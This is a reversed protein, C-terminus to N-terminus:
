CTIRSYSSTVQSYCVKLYRVVFARTRTQDLYCLGVLCMSLLLLSPTKKADFTSKHMFHLIPHFFQFFFSLSSDLIDITPFTAESVSFSKESVSLPTSRTEDDISEEHGILDELEICYQILSSRCEEDMAWRSMQSSSPASQESSPCSAQPVSFISDAEHHIARKWLKRTLRIGPKPGQGSWLRRIRGIQHVSFAMPPGNTTEDDARLASFPFDPNYYDTCNLMHSGIDLAGLPPIDGPSFSFANFDGEVPFHAQQTSEELNLTWPLRINLQSTLTESANAQSLGVSSEHACSETDQAEGTERNSMIHQRPSELVGTPNVRHHGSTLGNDLSRAMDDVGPARQSLFESVPHINDEYDFVDENPDIEGDIGCRHTSAPHVRESAETDSPDRQSPTRVLNAPASSSDIAPLLAQPVVSQQPGVHNRKSSSLASRRKRSSMFVASATRTTKHTGCRSAVADDTSGSTNQEDPPPHIESDQGELTRASQEQNNETNPHTQLHRYLVDSSWHYLYNTEFNGANSQYSALCVKQRLKEWMHSM